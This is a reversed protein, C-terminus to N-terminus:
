LRNVAEQEVVLAQVRDLLARALALGEPLSAYGWYASLAREVDHQAAIIAPHGDEPCSTDEALVAGELARITATTQM